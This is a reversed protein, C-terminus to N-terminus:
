ASVDASQCSKSCWNFPEPANSLGLTYSCGCGSCTKGSIHPLANIETPPVRAPALSSLQVLRCRKMRKAQDGKTAFQVTARTRNTSVITGLYRHGYYRLYVKAGVPPHHTELDGQDLYTATLQLVLRGFHAADIAQSAAVSDMGLALYRKVSEGTQEAVAQLRNIHHPTLIGPAVYSFQVTSRLAIDEDTTWTIRM